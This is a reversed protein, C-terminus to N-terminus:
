EMYHFIRTTCSIANGSLSYKFLKCIIYDRTAEDEQIGSVLDELTEIHDMPNEHPLGCYPHQGVHSFYTPRIEFGQIEPPQIARRNTYFQSPKILEAM